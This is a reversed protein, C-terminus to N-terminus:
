TADRRLTYFVGRDQEHTEIISEADMTDLYKNLENRHLGLIQELDDLTCPRRSLIEKIRVEIDSRYSRITKRQPAACIIEVNALNWLDIIQQLEIQSASRLGTVTGPRDLSNLQVIDPRIRLIADKLRLLEAESDNYGPLIFVELWIQGQYETRFDVMGQIMEKVFLGPAPRNMRNFVEESVADLSPLVVDVNLISERVPQMSLLTGNTLVAIPIDPESRKIFQIIDGIERFLTPEGSGSFTIYDPVPSTKFYHALEDMVLGPDFFTRRECTLETTRGVECYVCDLSCVKKPILDVGLSMGLRRSPIPGFLRSYM